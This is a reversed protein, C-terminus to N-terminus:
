LRALLKKPAAMRYAARVHTAIEDDETNDLRVGIWGLPGRYPPIFFKDPAAEVLLGQVGPPANLWLAIEGDGHHNNVYMAFMKGTGVRFTPAGWAEKELVEPLALCIARVRKLYSADGAKPKPPNALPAIAPPQHQGSDYLKIQTASAESRWLDTLLERLTDLKVKALNVLVYPYNQYHPTVFFVRPDSAILSDRDGCKVVLTENDEKLRVILKKRVRFALTGYSTGEEVGPLALLIQRVTEITVPTKKMVTKERFIDQLVNAHSQESVPQKM